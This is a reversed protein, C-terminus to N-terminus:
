GLNATRGIPPDGNPRQEAPETDGYFRATGKGAAKAVYLAADAKHLLGAVDQADAPAMAVGVSVGISLMRGNFHYPSSLATLIADARAMAVKRDASGIAMVFEDGGLRAVVDEARCLDRLRRAAGVLVADGAAHGAADNVAKFGDLDLFFVTAEAGEQRDGLMSRMRDILLLRNPLGTLPDRLANEESINILQVARRVFRFVVVTLALFAAFALALGPGVTRIIQDGPLFANWVLSDGMTGDQSALRIRSREGSDAGYGPEYHLNDLLFTEGLHKLSDREFRYVLAMLHADDAKAGADAVRHIGGIAVLHPAGDIGLVQTMLDSVHGARWRSIMQRFTPPLIGTAEINMRRGGARSFLTRDDADLIFLYAESADTPLHADLWDADLHGVVHAATEDRGALSGLTAAVHESYHRLANSAMEQQLAIAMRNQKGAMAVLGVIVSALLLAILGLMPLIVRFLFRRDRKTTQNM